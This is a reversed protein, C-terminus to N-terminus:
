SNWGTNRKHKLQMPGIRPLMNGKITLIETKQEKTLHRTVQRSAIIQGPLLSQWTMWIQKDFRGLGVEEEFLRVKCFTECVFQFDSFILLNGKDDVPIGTYNLYLTTEDPVVKEYKDKLNYLYIGRNVYSIDKETDDYLDDISFVNCPLKLRSHEVELPVEEFEYMTSVDGLLTLVAQACLETVDDLLFEKTKFSMALSAQVNEPTIYLSNLIGM